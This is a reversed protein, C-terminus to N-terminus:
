ITLPSKIILIIKDVKKITKKASSPSLVWSAVMNNDAFDVEFNDTNKPAENARMQVVIIPTRQPLKISFYIEFFKNFIIDAITNM